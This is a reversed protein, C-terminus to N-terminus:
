YAVAGVQSQGQARGTLQRARLSAQLQAWIVGQIDATGKVPACGSLSGQPKSASMAGTDPASGGCCIASCQSCDPGACVTWQTAGSSVLSNLLRLHIAPQLPMQVQMVAPAWWVEGLSHGSRILGLSQQQAFAHKLRSATMGPAHLCAQLRVCRCGLASSYPLAVRGQDSDQPDRCARWTM